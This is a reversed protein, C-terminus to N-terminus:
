NPSIYEILLRWLNAFLPVLGWVLDVWKINGPCYIGQTTQLFAVWILWSCIATVPVFTRAIWRMSDMDQAEPKARQEIFRKIMWLAWLMEMGTSVLMVMSAIILLWWYSKASGDAPVSGAHTFAVQLTRGLFVTALGCVFVEVFIHNLAGIGYNWDRQLNSLNGIFWAVRPRLAWLQILQWMDTRYGSARILLVTVVIGLVQLVLSGTSSWFSWPEVKRKRGKLLYSIIQSNGMLIFIGIAICNYVAFSILVRKASPCSVAGSSVRFGSPLWAPFTSNLPLEAHM